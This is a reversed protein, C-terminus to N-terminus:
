MEKSSHPRLAHRGICAPTVPPGVWQLYIYLSHHLGNESDLDCPWRNQRVNQKEPTNKKGEMKALSCGHKPVAMRVTCASGGRGWLIRALSSSGPSFDLEREVGFRLVGQGGYFGLSLHWRARQPQAGDDGFGMGRLIRVCSVAGSVSPAAGWKPERANIRASVLDSVTRRNARQKRNRTENPSRGM